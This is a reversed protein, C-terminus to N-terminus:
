KAGLRSDAPIMPLIARGHAVQTMDRNLVHINVRLAWPWLTDDKGNYTKLLSGLHFGKIKLRVSEKPKLYPVRETKVDDVKAERSWRGENIISEMDGGHLYTPAVVSEVTTLIIFDGDQIASDGKNEIHCIVDFVEPHPVKPDSTDKWRELKDYSAKWSAFFEIPGVALQENSATPM